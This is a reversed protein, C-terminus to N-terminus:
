LDLLGEPLSMSIIRTQNNIDKIWEDAVPILTGDKLEFLINDTSTDVHSIMGVTKGSNIDEISFGIIQAYSLEESSEEAIDRPFYIETGTLESAREQSDVSEFKVLASEDSRFRYEEMFFPVLIGDLKLILYESEARDFVDDTFLFSIEGKIGHPKGLKGIKYVSEERIM